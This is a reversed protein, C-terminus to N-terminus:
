SNAHTRDQCLEIVHGQRRVSFGSSIRVEAQGHWHTVLADIREIVARVPQIGHRELVIRLVRMRLPAALAALADADMRFACRSVGAGGTDGTTLRVREVADRALSELFDQDARATEAMAAIHAMVSDGAVSRLVPVLESRMRSRLPFSSSGDAHPTDTLDGAPDNTPDNTPDDWWEIGNQRCIQTTDDRSLDLFPRLFRVGDRTFRRPMGAMVAPSSSRAMGLLVTEVQDDRTHAVLVAAAGLERAVDVLAAYRAQRAAAETGERRALDANVRVTCVRVPALGLERCRQAARQAVDGSGSHLQHDVIVAGCRLGNSGAVIHAVAALALSDRGGSCAVLVLPADPEPAHEGHRAFIESQRGLGESGFCGRVRGVAARMQSSYVM